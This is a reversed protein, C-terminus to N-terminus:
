WILNASNYLMTQYVGYSGYNYSGTSGLIMQGTVEYVGGSSDNYCAYRSPDSYLGAYGRIAIYHGYSSDPPASAWSPLYFSANVSDRPNLAAALPM